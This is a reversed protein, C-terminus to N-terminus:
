RKSLHVHLRNAAQLNSSDLLIRPPVAVPSATKIFASRRAIQKSRPRLSYLPMQYELPIERQIWRSLASRACVVGVYDAFASPITLYTKTNAESLPACVVVTVSFSSISGMKYYLGHKSPPIIFSHVGSEKLSPRPFFHIKRWTAM